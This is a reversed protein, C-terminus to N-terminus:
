RNREFGFAGWRRVFRLVGLPEEIRLSIFDELLGRSAPVFRPLSASLDLDAYWFIKEDRIEAHAPVMLKGPVLIRGIQGDVDTMGALDMEIRLKDQTVEDVREYNAEMM